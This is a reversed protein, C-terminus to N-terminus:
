RLLRGLARADDQAQSNKQHYVDYHPRAASESPARLAAAYAEWAIQRDALYRRLAEHLAREREPVSAVAEVHARVTRWPPLVDRDIVDALALEDIQNARQQHLADNFAQLCRREVAHFETILPDSESEGHPRVALAVGIAIAVGCGALIIWLATKRTV